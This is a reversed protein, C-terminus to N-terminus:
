RAPSTSSNLPFVSFRKSQPTKLYACLCLAGFACLLFYWRFVSYAKRSQAQTGKGSQAQALNEKILGNNAIIKGTKVQLRPPSIASASSELDLPPLVM